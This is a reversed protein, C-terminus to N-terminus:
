PSEGTAMETREMWLKDRLFALEAPAEERRLEYALLTGRPRTASSEGVTLLRREAWMPLPINLAITLTNGAESVRVSQPQGRLADVACLLWMAEDRGRFRRDIQPLDVLRRPVGDLLELYCWVAGGWKRRRRAVFRGTQGTPTVFRGVYYDPRVATDVIALDSLSGSPPAADLIQDLEAVLEAPRRDRPAEM